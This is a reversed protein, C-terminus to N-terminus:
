ASSPLFPGPSTREGVGNGALSYVRWAGSLEKGMDGTKGVWGGLCSRRVLKSDEGRVLRGPDM